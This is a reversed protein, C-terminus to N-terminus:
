TPDPPDFFAGVSVNEVAREPFRDPVEKVVVLKRREELDGDAAQSLVEVTQAAAVEDAGSWEVEALSQPVFWGSTRFLPQRQLCQHLVHATQPVNSTDEPGGVTGPNPMQM